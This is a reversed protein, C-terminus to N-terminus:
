REAPDNLWSYDIRQRELFELLTEMGRDIDLGFLTSHARPHRRPEPEFHATLEIGDSHDYGRVHVQWWNVGSPHSRREIRRLNIIEKHYNYSVTWGPEFDNQRLLDTVAESSQSIVVSAELPRPKTFCMKRLWWFVGRLSKFALHRIRPVTTISVIIGSILLTRRTVDIPVFTGVTRALLEVTGSGERFRSRGIRQSSRDSM